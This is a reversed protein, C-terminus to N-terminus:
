ESIMEVWSTTPENWRYYGDVPKVVPASWNYNEDLVWSDYPKPAIFANNEADYKGGIVAPNIDTYEVFVGIDTPDPQTEATVINLINEGNIFAYKKM